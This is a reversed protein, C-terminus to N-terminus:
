LTGQEMDEFLVSHSFQGKAQQPELRYYHGIQLDAGTVTYTTTKFTETDTPTLTFTYQQEDEIDSIFVARVGDENTQTAINATLDQGNITLAAENLDWVIALCTYEAPLIYQQQEPTITWEYEIKFQAWGSVHLNDYRFVSRDYTYNISYDGTRLTYTKGVSINVSQGNNKETMTLGSANLDADTPLLSRIHALAESTSVARTMDGSSVMRWGFVATTTQQVPEKLETKEDQSCSALCLVAVAAGFLYKKM